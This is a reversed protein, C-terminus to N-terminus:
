PLRRRSRRFPAEAAMGAAMANLSDPAFPQALLKNEAALPSILRAEKPWRWVTWGVPFLGATAVILSLRAAAINM